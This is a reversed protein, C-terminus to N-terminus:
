KILKSYTQNLTFSFSFLNMSTKIESYNLNYHRIKASTYISNAGVQFHVQM